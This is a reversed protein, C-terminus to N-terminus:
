DPRLIQVALEHTCGAKLLREAEHWDVKHEGLIHADDFSFGLNAFQEVRWALLQGEEKTM